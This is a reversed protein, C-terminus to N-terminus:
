PLALEKVWQDLGPILSAVEHNRTLNTEAAGQRSSWIQHEPTMPFVYSCIQLSKLPLIEELERFM